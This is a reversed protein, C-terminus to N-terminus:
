NDLVTVGIEVRRRFQLYTSSRDKSGRGESTIPNFRTSQGSFHHQVEQALSASLAQNSAESGADEVHGVIHVAVRNLGGYKAALRKVLATVVNPDQANQASLTTVDPAMALTPRVRDVCAKAASVRSISHIQQRTAFVEQAAVSLPVVEIKPRALLTESLRVYLTQGGSMVINQSVEREPNARAWSRGPQAQLNISASSLCITSFAGNQLSTHYRGDMHLTIVGMGDGAPRYVVLRSQEEVVENVPAFLAGLAQTVVTLDAQAFAAPVGFVAWLSLLLACQKLVLWTDAQQKFANL